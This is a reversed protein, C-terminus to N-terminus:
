VKFTILLRSILANKIFNSSQFVVLKEDERRIVKDKLFLKSINLNWSSKIKSLTWCIYRHCIFAKQLHKLFEKINDVKTSALLAQYYRKFTKKIQFNAWLKFFRLLNIQLFNKLIAILSVVLTRLRFDLYCVSLSTYIERNNWNVLEEVLDHFCKSKCFLRFDKNAFISKLHRYWSHLQTLCLVTVCRQM